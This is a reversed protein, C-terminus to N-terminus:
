CRHGSQGPERASSGLLPRSLFGSVLGSCRPSHQTASRYPPSTQFGLRNLAVLCGAAFAVASLGFAFTQTTSVGRRRIMVYSTLTVYSAMGVTGTALAVANQASDATHEQLATAPAGIFTVAFELLPGFSSLLKTLYKSEASNIQESFLEYTYAQLTLL